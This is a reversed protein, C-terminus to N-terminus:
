KAVLPSTWSYGKWPQGNVTGKLNIQFNAKGSVLDCLFDKAGTAGDYEARDIWSGSQSNFSQILPGIFDDTSGIVNSISAATDIGVGLTAQDVVLPNTLEFRAAVAGAARAGDSAATLFTAGLLPSVPVQIPVAGSQRVLKRAAAARNADASSVALQAKQLVDDCYGSKFLDTFGVVTLTVHPTVRVSGAYDDLITIRGLQGDAAVAVHARITLGADALEFTYDLDSAAAPMLMDRAMDSEGGPPLGGDAPPNMTPRKGDHCAGLALISILLVRRM